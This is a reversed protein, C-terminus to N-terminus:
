PAVHVVGKAPPHIGSSVKRRDRRRDLIAMRWGSADMVRVPARLESGLGVPCQQAVLAQNVRHRAALM